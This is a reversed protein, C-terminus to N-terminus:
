STQLGQQKLQASQPAKHTCRTALVNSAGARQEHQLPALTPPAEVAHLDAPEYAAGVEGDNGGIADRTAENM